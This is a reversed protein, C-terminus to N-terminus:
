KSKRTRPKTDGPDAANVSASKKKAGHQAILQGYLAHTRLQHRRMAQAARVPDRAVIAKAIAVHEDHSLLNAGIVHVTETRFRALWELIAAAMEDFIANGTIAAIARHFAIDTQLYEGRSSIALRNAELAANLKAKDRGTAVEAARAAMAVELALRMEKLDEVFRSSDTGARQASLELWNAIGQMPLNVVRARRGHQISILGQAELILLAERVAPRGVAFSRMLDRESPLESGRAYAGDRIADAIQHSIGHFLKRRQVPAFM